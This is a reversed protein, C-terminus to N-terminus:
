FIIIFLPKHIRSCLQVIAFNSWILVLMNLLNNSFEFPLAMAIPNKERTKKLSFQVMFYWIKAWVQFVCTSGLSVVEEGLANKACVILFYKTPWQLCAGSEVWHFLIGFLLGEEWVLGLGFGVFSYFTSSSYFTTSQLTLTTSQEFWWSVWFFPEFLPYFPLLIM